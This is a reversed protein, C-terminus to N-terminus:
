KRGFIEEFENYIKYIEEKSKDFAEKILYRFEMYTNSDSLVGLTKPNNFDFAFPIDPKQPLFKDILSRDEVQMERKTHSLFFADQILMSPLLVKESLKYSIFLHDYVEQHNSSYIQLWGTDRQSITDTQDMWINWGPAVARNVVGMVIPLRAGSAWHLLEHMYLLGQGSTATFTRVGSNAAGICAAMVSHESEMPVYYADTKKNKVENAITEIMSTQPTIPYVPIFKVNAQSVAVGVAQNGKLAKKM